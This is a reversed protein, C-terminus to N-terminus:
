HKIPADELVLRGDVDVPYVVGGLRQSLDVLRDGSPAFSAGAPERDVGAVAVGFVRSIELAKMGSLGFRIRAIAIAGHLWFSSKWNEGRNVRHEQPGPVGSLLRRREM